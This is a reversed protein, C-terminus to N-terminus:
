STTGFESLEPQTDAGEGEAPAVAIGWTSFAELSALSAVMSGLKNYDQPDVEFTDSPALADPPGATGTAYAAAYVNTEYPAGDIDDFVGTGQTASAATGGTTEDGTGGTFTDGEMSYLTAFADPLALSRRHDEMRKRERQQRRKRRVILLITV